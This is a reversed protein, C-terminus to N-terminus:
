FYFICDRCRYRLGIFDQIGNKAGQKSGTRGNLNCDTLVSFPRAARSRKASGTCGPWRKSVM